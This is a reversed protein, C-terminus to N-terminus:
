KEKIPIWIEEESNPDNNKYKEGLIEFHPRDDLEFSSQPIWESYIYRFIRNDTNLGKYHFVAYLGGPLDLTELGDPVSSFDEVEVAAWKDFQNTPSFNKFHEPAYVSLSILDTSLNNKIETKKPLFSKWLETVKFDVLSMKVKKGILKKPALTKINPQLQM